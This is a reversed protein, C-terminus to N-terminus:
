CINLCFGYAPKFCAGHIVVHFIKEPNDTLSGTYPDWKNHRDEDPDQHAPLKVFPQARRWPEKEYEKKEAYGSTETIEDM